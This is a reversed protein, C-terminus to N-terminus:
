YLQGFDVPEFAQRYHTILPPGQTRWIIAVVDFRSRRELWGRRKLWALAARTIQRQKDRTVAEAPSADPSWQRSKVEVFVICDGELAILDIEGFQNCMQRVLIRLGQQQLYKAAAREGRDGLWRRLWGAPTFRAASPWRRRWQSWLAM